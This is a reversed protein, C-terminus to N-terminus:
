NMRPAAPPTLTRGPRGIPELKDPNDPPIVRKGNVDEVDVVIEVAVNCKQSTRLGLDFGVIGASVSPRYPGLLPDPETSRNQVNFARNFLGPGAFAGAGPRSAITMATGLDTALELFDDPPLIGEIRSKPPIVFWRDVGSVNPTMAGEDGASLGPRYRLFENWPDVLLEVIRPRDDLNSLTFRVTIRTDAALQFPTRPYPALPVLAAEEEANPKRLPLIVPVSVQYIATEEDEYFAGMRDNMGLVVPLITQDGGQNACAVLVGAVLAASVVRRVASNLATPGVSRPSSVGPPTSRGHFSFPDRVIVEIFLLGQSPRAAGKRRGSLFATQM